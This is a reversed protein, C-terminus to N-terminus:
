GPKQLMFHSLTNSSRRSPISTWWLYGGLMEDPKGSSDSASHSYLTKGFFVICIVQGPSLGLGRLGSDLVSVVLDGRTGCTRWLWWFIANWFNFPNSFIAFVHMVIVAGRKPWSQLYSSALIILLIEFFGSLLRTVTITTSPIQQTSCQAASHQVICTRVGTMKSYTNVALTIFSQGQRLSILNFISM